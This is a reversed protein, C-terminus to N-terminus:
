AIKPSNCPNCATAILVGDKGVYWNEGDGHCECFWDMLRENKSVRGSAIVAELGVFIWDGDIPDLAIPRVLFPVNRVNVQFTEGIRLFDIYPEYYGVGFSEPSMKLKEPVGM